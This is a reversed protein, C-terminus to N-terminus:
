GLGICETCINIAKQLVDRAGGILSGWIIFAVALVFLVIRVTLVYTKSNFFGEVKATPCRREVPTKSIQQKKYFGLQTKVQTGAWIDVGICVAFSAAIWPFCHVFASWMTGNVDTKDYNATNVLYVILCISVVAIILACLVWLIHKILKIRAIPAYEASERDVIARSELRKLTYRPSNKSRAEKLPYLRYLVYAAIVSLVTIILPASIQLLKQGVIERTYAGQVGGGSYFIALAQGILLGGCLVILTSLIWGSAYRIIKRKKEDMIANNYVNIFIIDLLHITKTSEHRYIRSPTDLRSFIDCYIRIIIM